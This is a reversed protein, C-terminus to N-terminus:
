SFLAVLRLMYLQLVDVPCRSQLVDGSGKREFRTLRTAARQWSIVPKGPVEIPIDDDL